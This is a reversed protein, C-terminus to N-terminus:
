ATEGHRDLRRLLPGTMATTALAMVVLMAFLAPSLLGAALGTNLIILETLGRCNMMAGLQASERWSFRMLRAPVVTGAFKAAAAAVLVALCILWGTVGHVAGLHTSLGVAMFFSPLLLWSTLGEVRWAIQEVAATRPMALGAAVAGFLAHVGIQETALACLLVTVLVISATRAAAMPGQSREPALLRALLPRLGRWVALGFLVVWGVTAAAAPLSGGGAVALVLALLCWATVDAVSASAMALTGLRSNLMGEDSLLRALVPVATISLSLGMFLVFPVTRAGDPLLGAPLALAVLVGTLFPLAIGSHGILTSAPLGNRRLDPLSLELGVTFMFLTVGLQGLTNLFPFVESPLLWRQADPALAGFVSPGLLLAAAIEGVVRPQGARRALAGAAGACATVVALAGLIRYLPVGPGAAPAQEAHGAYGVTALILATVGVPIGVLAGYGLLIRRPAPASPTATVESTSGKL